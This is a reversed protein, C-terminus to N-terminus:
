YNAKKNTIKNLMLMYWQKNVNNNKTEPLIEEISITFGQKKMTFVKPSLIKETYKRFIPKLKTEINDFTNAQNFYKEIFTHELFPFRMEISYHMSPQDCRFTHHSSIYYFIDYYSAKKLLPLESFKPYLKYIQNQIYLIPHEPIPQNQSELFHNIESWSFLQRAILPFSDLGFEKIEQFKHRKRKPLLLSPLNILFSYKSLKNIQQYYRYGGFIEDPGLANYLVKINKGAIKDCLFLAPEPCANPEEESNLFFDIEESSFTKSVLYNNISIGANKANCQAFEFESDPKDTYIHVAEINDNYKGYFYALAGSDIGGSLMIAKEVQGTAYLKCIAEIDQYFFESSITEMNETYKLHWYDQIDIKQTKQNYELLHGSQLSYINKYITLPSPCTGLYMSYALGTYNLEKKIQMAFLGKMESSFFFGQDTITYYFPKIGLRDRWVCLSNTNYDYIVIAFMGKLKDVFSNGLKKYLHFAVESDSDSYFHVDSLYESKLEAYNYIEGNMLFLLNQEKDFFPQMANNSLDVISLRNFGFCTSTSNSKVIPYTSKSFSNSLECSYFNANSDGTVILTDDPGRHKIARLSSVLIETNKETNLIWGSFGCM